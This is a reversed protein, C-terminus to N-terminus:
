QIENQNYCYIGAGIDKWEEDINPYVFSSTLVCNINTLINIGLLQKLNVVGLPRNRICIDWAIGLVYINKIHRNRSLYLKLEWLQHMAVQFKSPNIYNLICPSTAREKTTSNEQCLHGYMSNRNQYWVCNSAIVESKCDYSSLVVTEIVDTKNIFELINNCLANAATSRELPLASLDWCDILIALSPENIM